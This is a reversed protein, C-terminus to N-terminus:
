ALFYEKPDIGYADSPLSQRIAHPEGTPSPPDFLLDFTSPYKMPKKDPGLIIMVKPKLRRIHNQAIVVAVEGSELEVLTGVPYLGLCQIFQDVVADSFKKNRLLNIKELARQASLASRYPRQSLMACYSDVLGAMEGYLGIEEGKLGLPYGNGDVREHHRSVIEIVEQDMNCRERVIQVSHQVHTTFVKMEASTLPGQKHLLAPPLNLIGVDQMLGVTGLMELTPEPLGLFRGFVMLHVSVDLAHDFAYQDTRKLRTLWILADPNRVVSQVLDGVTTTVHRLDPTAGCQVDHLLKEVTVSAEQFVPAITLLEEEVSALAPYVEAPGEVADVFKTSPLSDLEDERSEWKFIGALRACSQPVARARHRPM